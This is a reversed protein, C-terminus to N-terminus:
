CWYSAFIRINGDVSIEGNKIVYSANLQNCIAPAKSLQIAIQVKICSCKKDKIFTKRDAAGYLDLFIETDSLHPFGFRIESTIDVEGVMGLKYSNLKGSFYCTIESKCNQSHIFYSILLCSFIGLLFSIIIKKSIPFKFSPRTTDHNM